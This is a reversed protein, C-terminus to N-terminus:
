RCHGGYGVSHDIAFIRVDGGMQKYIHAGAM